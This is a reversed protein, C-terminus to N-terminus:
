CFRTVNFRLQFCTRGASAPHAPNGALALHFLNSHCEGPVQLHPPFFHDESSSGELTHCPSITPFLCNSSAPKCSLVGWLGSEKEEMSNWLIGPKTQGAASTAARAPLGRMVVRYRCSNWVSAWVVPTQSPVFVFSADLCWKETVLTNRTLAPHVPGQM